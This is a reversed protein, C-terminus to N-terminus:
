EDFGKLYNVCFFDPWNELLNTGNLSLNLTFKHTQFCEMGLIGTKFNETVFDVAFAKSPYMLNSAKEPLNLIKIDNEIADNLCGVLANM